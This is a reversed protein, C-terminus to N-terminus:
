GRSGPASPLRLKGDAGPRRRWVVGLMPLLGALLLLAAGPEPVATLMVPLGTDALVALDLASIDGRVGRHFVVGNMLDPLLDLGLGAVANGLHAYNGLTLPVPGGYVAMAQPGTFFMATGLPTAMPQVYADFTSLPNGAAAAWPTDLWGNFGLAHGFEHMLVTMADTRDGPVAASRALADPDFWLENQLYGDIGVVIEIDPATGNPDVGTRLEYAAGQSWLASGDGASGYLGTTASRGSATAMSAFGISVTLDVAAAGGAVHQLWASGAAVTLRELDAYYPTYTAAPDAFVVQIRDGTGASAAGALGVACALLAHCLFRATAPTSM